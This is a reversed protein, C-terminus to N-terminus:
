RSSVALTHQLHRSVCSCHRIDLGLLRHLCRRLNKIDFRIFAVQKHLPRVLFIHNNVCYSNASGLVLWIFCNCFISMTHVAHQWPLVASRCLYVTPLHHHRPQSATLLIHCAHLQVISYLICYINFKSYKLTEQCCGAHLSFQITNTAQDFYAKVFWLMKWFLQWPLTMNRLFFILVQFALTKILLLQLEFIM